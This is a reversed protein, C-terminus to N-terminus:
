EVLRIRFDQVMARDVMRWKYVTNFMSAGEHFKLAAHGWNTEILLSILTRGGGGGGM